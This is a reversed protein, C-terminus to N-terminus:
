RTVEGGDRRQRFGRGYNHYRGAGEEEPALADVVIRVAYARLEVIGFERLIADPEVGELHIAVFDAQAFIEGEQLLPFRRGGVLQLFQDPVDDGDV